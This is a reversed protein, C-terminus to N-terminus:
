NWNSTAQEAGVILVKHGTVFASQERKSGVYHPCQPMLLGLGLLEIIVVVLTM